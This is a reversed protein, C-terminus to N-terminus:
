RIRGTHLSRGRQDVLEKLGHELSAWCQQSTATAAARTAAHGSETQEIFAAYNDQMVAARDGAAALAQQLGTDFQPLWNQLAKREALQRHLHSAETLYSVAAGTEGRDLQLLGNRTVISYLDRLWVEHRSDNKLLSRRLAVAEMFAASAGSLDNLAVKTQGIRELSWSVDSQLVTELPDSEHLRRRLCLALEFYKLAEAPARRIIQDGTKNLLWSLERQWETDDPRALHGSLSLDLAEAYRQDAEALDHAVQIQLDGVRVLAQSLSEALAPDSPDQEHLHRRIVLTTQAEVLAARPDSTRQLDSILEHFNGIGIEYSRERPYKAALGELRQLGGRAIEIARPSQAKKYTKAFELALDARTSDFKPDAAAAHAGLEDVHKSIETFAAEIAGITIGQINQLRGAFTKILGDITGRATRYNEVAAIQARQAEDWQWLAAAAILAFVITATVLARMRWRARSGSAAVFGMLPSPIEDEYRACIHEAEAIAMGPPILLQRKRKGDVWRQYQQQVDDRIRYFDRQQEIIKRARGWSEFVRQHAVRLLGSTDANGRSASIIRSQLLADVLRTSPWDHRAEGAPVSRVTLALRGGAVGSRDDVPVALHRLLRPLADVEAPGLSAIAQEAAQDIAGDLGGMARYATFTLLTADERAEREDFLQNLTFQLLPLIDEGGADKLLVEDLRSGTQADTEYQLGAAIASKHVIEELEEPGPPALDYTAGSDKLAIWLRESILREYLDGRLTAVVWVVDTAILDALLSAFTDRQTQDVSASFMDDLQDLLLLLAGRLPREYGERARTEEAVEALAAVVEGVIRDPTQQILRALAAFDVGLRARLEPLASGFGGSDPENSDQVLADALAHSVSAGDSPRMVATRWVDVNAVVGPLTLRPALGARMLSSKGSGSPGVILLFPRARRDRSNSPAAPDSSKVTGAAAADKILEIARAVKRDRGFFVAAHKADFTALGRFPSGMTAIPWVIAAAGEVNERVWDQLLTETAREFEDTSDFANYAAIFTGDKRRFWRELFAELREFQLQAEAVESPRGLAVVPPAQKRFVYVDPFARSGKQQRAAREHLSSLLEYASGSPYPEGAYQAVEAPLTAFEEPLPTGLRSWFVAIVVDCDRAEPISAQFTAHAGYYRTEWRIAEFRLVQAYQGNLREIVRQLRQREFVVDTPSSIFVRVTRM